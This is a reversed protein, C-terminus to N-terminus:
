EAVEKFETGIFYSLGRKTIEWEDGFVNQYIFNGVRKFTNGSSDKYIKDKEFLYNLARM